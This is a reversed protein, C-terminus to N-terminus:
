PCKESGKFPKEDNFNGGGGPIGWGGLYEEEERHANVSRLSM